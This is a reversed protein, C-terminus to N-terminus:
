TRGRAAAATRLVQARRTLNAVLPAAIWCLYAYQTFFAVPISAAFMVAVTILRLSGHPPVPPASPRLLGDTRLLRMLGLSTLAVLVQVMAYLGFRVGFGGNGALVRAAFPIVVILFLWFMNLTMLRGSLRAVFRFLRHHMRWYGGIVLFSIGFALYDSDHARISRAVEANSSGHPLPLGLALLTIAIAVVADTFFIMREASFLEIEAALEGAEAREEDAAPRDGPAAGPHDDRAAASPRPAREDSPQTM